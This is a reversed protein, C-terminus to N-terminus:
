REVLLDSVQWVSRGYISETQFAPEADYPYILWFPGQARLPMPAGDRLFALMPAIETVEDLPITASYGDLARVTVTGAGPDIGAHVLLDRLLVGTYRNVADTWVTGTVYETQPLARLAARDLRLVAGSATDRLVLAADDSDPRAAGAGLVAWGAAGLALGLVHRRHRSVVRATM